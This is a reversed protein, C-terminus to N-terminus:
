RRQPINAAWADWYAKSARTLEDFSVKEGSDLYISAAAYSLKLTGMVCNVVVPYTGKEVGVIEPDLRVIEDFDKVPPSDYEQYVFQDCESLVVKFGTGKGPFQQRLYGISVELSVTGPIKGTISDIGGDHLLGWFEKM